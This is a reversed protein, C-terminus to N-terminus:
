EAALARVKQKLKKLEGELLESSREVTPDAMGQYYGRINGQKDVLALRTSHDFEQGPDTAKDNRTVPVKFDPGLDTKELWRSWTAKGDQAMLPMEFFAIFCSCVLGNILLHRHKM